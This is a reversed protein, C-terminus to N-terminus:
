EGCKIQSEPESQADRSNREDEEDVAQKSSHENRVAAWENRTMVPDVVMRNWPVARGAAFSGTLMLVTRHQILIAEVQRLDRLGM